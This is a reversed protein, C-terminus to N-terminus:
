QPQQPPPQQPPQDPVTPMTEAPNPVSAPILKAIQLKKFITPWYEELVNAGASIGIRIGYRGFTRGVTREEHPLYVNALGEAMLPGAIGSWNTTETGADSRTVVIRSLAYAIRRGATGHLLVFYRPDERLVSALVFTKFYESTTGTAITSGLRKGYGGFGQGYGMPTNAAQDVGAAFVDALLTSPAVADDTALELKQRTTLAKRTVALGPFFISRSALIALTDEIPAPMEPPKQAAEAPKQDTQGSDAPKQDSPPAAQPKAPQPEQQARAGASTVAVLLCAYAISQCLGIWSRLGLKM